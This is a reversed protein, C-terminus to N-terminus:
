YGLCMAVDVLVVNGWEVYVWWYFTLMCVFMMSLLGKNEEWERAAKGGWCFMAIDSPVHWCHPVGPLTMTAVTECLPLSGRLTQRM